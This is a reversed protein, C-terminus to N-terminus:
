GTVGPGPPTGALTAVAEEVLRVLRTGWFERRTRPRVWVAVLGAWRGGVVDMLLRDGVVWVRSAPLGLLSLGQRYARPRPKGARAVAPLGLAQATPRVREERNNSVIALRLGTDLALRVWRVVSRPPRLGNPVTLTNDLDLLLGGVGQDVLWTPDLDEVARVTLHPWLGRRV